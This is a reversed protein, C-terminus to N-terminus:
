PIQSGSRGRPRSTRCPFPHAADLSLPTLVPSIQADFIRSAEDRQEDSLEDWAVLRIGHEALRPRLVARYCRAQEALMSIVTERVRGLQEGSAEAAVGAEGPMPRILAIRKMFFEDLNSSFIALFKVRELLPTREDLAESLVRRNFELWSLDRDVLPLAPEGPAPSQPRGREVEVPSTGDGVLRSAHV